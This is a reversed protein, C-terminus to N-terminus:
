LGLNGKEGTLNELVKKGNLRFTVVAEFNLAKKLWGEKDEFSSWPSLHGVVTSARAKVM